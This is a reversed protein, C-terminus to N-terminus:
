RCLGHCLISNIDSTLGATVLDTYNENGREPNDAGIIINKQITVADPQRRFYLLVNSGNRQLIVTNSKIEVNNHQHKFGELGYGIAQHNASFPGQHLVSGTIKLRGGNAIDVLRSDQASLSAIVSNEIVTQAGRTKIGHGQDKSALVMSRSFYLNASNLYIAHAQGAKGLLEFRSNVIYVTGAHRATELIGEESSHFYVNDLSLGVGELRVCAGNGSPVSINRCELNSLTLNNGTALVFGKGDIASQEFVVHGNGVISINNKKVHIGSNYTGTGLLLTDGDQLAKAADTLTPYRTNNVWIGESPPFRINDPQWHGFVHVIEAKLQREDPINVSNEDHLAMYATIKERANEALAPDKIYIVLVALHM